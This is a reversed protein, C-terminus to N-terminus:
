FATVPNDFSLGKLGFGFQSQLHDPPSPQRVQRTFGYQAVRQISAAALKPAFQTFLVQELPPYGSPQHQASAIAVSGLSEAIGKFIGRQL